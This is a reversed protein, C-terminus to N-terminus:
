RQALARPDPCRATSPKLDPGLRGDNHALVLVSVPMERKELHVKLGFREGLLSQLMVMMDKQTGAFGDETKGQVDFRKSSQWSPGGVILFDPFEYALQILVRLTVNGATFRSNTMPGLRPMMGMPTSTDATSPKVSVVEFAVAGTAQPRAARLPLAMLAFSVSVALGAVLRTM